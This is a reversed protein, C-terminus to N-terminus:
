SADGGPAGARGSAASLGARGAATGELPTPPKAGPNNKGHILWFFILGALVLVVLIALLWKNIPLKSQKKTRKKM